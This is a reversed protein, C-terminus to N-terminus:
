PNKFKVILPSGTGENFGFAYACRVAMDNTATGAYPTPLIVDIDTIASLIANKHWLYGAAGDTSASITIQASTIIPIAGHLVGAQGRIRTQAGGAAAWGNAVLSAFGANGTVFVLDEISAGNQMVMSIGEAIESLLFTNDTALAKTNTATTILTDLATEMLIYLADADMKVQAALRGPMQSVTNWTSPAWAHRIAKDTCTLTQILNDEDATLLTGDITAATSRQPVYVSVKNGSRVGDVLTTYQTILSPHGKLSAEVIGKFLTPETYAM